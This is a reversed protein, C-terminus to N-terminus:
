LYISKHTYIIVKDVFYEKIKRPSVYKLYVSFIVQVTSFGMIMDALQMAQGISEDPLFISRMEGKETLCARCIKNINFQDTDNKIDM